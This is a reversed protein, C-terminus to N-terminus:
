GIVCCCMIPRQACNMVYFMTKVACGCAILVGCDAAEEVRKARPGLTRVLFNRMGPEDDVVLISAKELWPGFEPGPGGFNDDNGVPPKVGNAEDLATSRM